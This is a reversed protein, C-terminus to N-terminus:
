PLPGSRARGPEKRIDWNWRALDQLQPLHAEQIAVLHNGVEDIIGALNKAGGGANWSMFALRGGAESLPLRGDSRVRSAAPAASPREEDSSVPQVDRSPYSSSAVRM